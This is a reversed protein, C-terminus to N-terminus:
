AASRWGNPTEEFCRRGHEIEDLEALADILIRVEQSGGIHERYLVRILRDAPGPIETQGKEWRAVTQADLGLMVALGGQSLDMEKRLFRVEQGDLHARHTIIDEAIARHLGDMDDISIGPGYETEHRTFGNVLYVYDLGSLRYHHFDSETTMAYGGM